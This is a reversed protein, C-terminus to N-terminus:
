KRERFTPALEKPIEFVDKGSDDSTVTPGTNDSDSDSRAKAAALKAQKQKDKAAKQAKRRAAQEKEPLNKFLKIPVWKTYDKKWAGNDVDIDDRNKRDSNQNNVSRNSKAPKKPCNKYLVNLMGDYTIESKNLLANTDLSARTAQFPEYESIATTLFGVLDSDIMESGVSVNMETVLNEFDNLFRYAGGKYAPTLKLSAIRDFYNAKNLSVISKDEYYDIFKKWVTKADLTLIHQNVIVKAKGGTIKVKLINYFYQNQADFLERDRSDDAPIESDDLIRSIGHNAAISIYTQKTPIWKAINGNFM